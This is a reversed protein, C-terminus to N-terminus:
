SLFGFNKKPSNLWGEGFGVGGMWHLFGNFPFGPEKPRWINRPLGNNPTQFFWGWRPKTLGRGFWPNEGIRLWYDQVVKVKPPRKGLGPDKLIIPFNTGWNKGPFGEQGL